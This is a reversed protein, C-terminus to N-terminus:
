QPTHDIGNEPGPIEYHNPYGPNQSFDDWYNGITTNWKNNNSNNSEYANEETNDIFTNNWITNYKSIKQLYFGYKNNNAMNAILNNYKSRYLYIGHKFHQIKCNKITVGKRKYLHIGNGKNKGSIIHNNCNLIINDSKIILGYSSCNSLNQTLNTNTTINDGCNIEKKENYSENDEPQMSTIKPLTRKIREELDDYVNDVKDYPYTAKMSVYNKNIAFHNGTLINEQFFMSLMIALALVSLIMASTKRNFM